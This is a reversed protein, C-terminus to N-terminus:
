KFRADYLRPVPRAADAERQEAYADHRAGATKVAEWAELARKELATARDHAATRELQARARADRADQEARERKATHTDLIRLADRFTATVGESFAESWHAQPPERLVRELAERAASETAGDLLLLERNAARVGQARTQYSFRELFAAKAEDSM